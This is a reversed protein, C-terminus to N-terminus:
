DIFKVKLVGLKEKNKKLDAEDRKIEANCIQLVQQAEAKTLHQGEYDDCKLKRASVLDTM